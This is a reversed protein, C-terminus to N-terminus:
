LEIEHSLLITKTPFWTIAVDYEAKAEEFTNFSKQYSGDIKLYYRTGDYKVQEEIEILKTMQKNTIQKVNLFNDNINALDNCFEEIFQSM